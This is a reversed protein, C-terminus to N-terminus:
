RMLSHEQLNSNKEISFPIAWNSNVEARQDKTLDYTDINSYLEIAKDYNKDNYYFNAMEIIAQNALPDPDYKRAFDLVLKEGEPLDLRVASKAYYLEAKKRLLESDPENALRQDTIVKKFERQSEGLLGKDYFEKGRKFAENAETYVATQQASLKTNLLCFVM